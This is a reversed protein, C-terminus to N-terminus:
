QKNSDLDVRHFRLYRHDSQLVISSKLILIHFCANPIQYSVNDPFVIHTLGTLEPLWKHSHSM